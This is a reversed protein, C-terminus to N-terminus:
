FGLLLKTSDLLGLVVLTSGVVPGSMMAGFIPLTACLIMGIEVMSSSDNNAM